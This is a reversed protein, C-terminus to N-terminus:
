QSGIRQLSPSANAGARGLNFGWVFTGEGTVSDVAYVEALGINQASSILEAWADVYAEIATGAPSLSADKLTFDPELGPTADPDMNVPVIAHHIGGIGTYTIRTFGPALGKDM